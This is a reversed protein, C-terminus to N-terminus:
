TNRTKLCFSKDPTAGRDRDRGWACLVCVCVVTRERETETPIIEKGGPQRLCQGM